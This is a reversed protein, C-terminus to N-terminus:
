GPDSSVEPTPGNYVGGVTLILRPRQVHVRTVKWLNGLFSIYKIDQSFQYAYPDAVVSIRNSVNLNDNLTETGQWLSDNQLIDGYYKRETIHDVFVGPRIEETRSYGIVGYYKAM